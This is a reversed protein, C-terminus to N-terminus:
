DQESGYDFEEGDVNEYDEIESIEIGQEEIIQELSKREKKM